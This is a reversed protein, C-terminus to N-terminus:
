ENKLNTADMVNETLFKSSADLNGIAPREVEMADDDDMSQGTLGPNPRGQESNDLSVKGTMSHDENRRPPMAYNSAKM